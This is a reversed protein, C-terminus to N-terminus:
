EENNEENHNQFDSRPQLKPLVTLPVTSPVTTSKASLFFHHREPIHNATMNDIIPPTSIGYPKFKNTKCVYEGRATKPCAIGMPIRKGRCRGKMYSSFSVCRVSLFNRENKPIVTEAYYEYSRSHSCVIGLCGPQSSWKRRIQLFFSNLM